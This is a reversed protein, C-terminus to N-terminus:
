LFGVKAWYPFHRKLMSLQGVIYIDALKSNKLSNFYFSSLIKDLVDSLQDQVPHFNTDTIGSTIGARIHGAPNNSASSPILTPHLIWPNICHLLKVIEHKQTVKSKLKILEKTLYWRGMSNMQYFHIACQHKGPETFVKTFIFLCVFLLSM